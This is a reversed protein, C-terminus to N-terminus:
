KSIFINKTTFIIITEKKENPKITFNENGCFNNIDEDARLNEAYENIIYPNFIQKQFDWDFCFLNEYNCYSSSHNTDNIDCLECDKCHINYQCPPLSLTSHIVIIYIFILLIYIYQIQVKLM